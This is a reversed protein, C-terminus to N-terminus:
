RYEPSRGRGKGRTRAVAAPSLTQAEALNSLLVLATQTKAQREDFLRSAFNSVRISSAAPANCKRSSRTAPDSTEGNARFRTRMPVVSVHERSM